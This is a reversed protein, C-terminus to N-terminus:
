HRWACLLPAASAFCRASLRATYIAPLVYVFDRGQVRYRRRVLCGGLGAARRAKTGRAPVLMAPFIAGLLCPLGNTDVIVSVAREM